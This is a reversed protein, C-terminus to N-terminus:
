QSLLTICRDIEKLYSNIKREFEKKDPGSLEGHTYKLVEVQQKLNDMEERQGTFQKKVEQLDAKLQGNERQLLTYEKVLQQLKAQIRKLQVETEAM